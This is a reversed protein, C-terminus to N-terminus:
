KPPKRNRQKHTKSLMKKLTASKSGNKAYTSLNEKLWSPGTNQFTKSGVKDLLQKIDLEKALPALQIKGNALAAIELPYPGANLLKTSIKQRSQNQRCDDLSKEVVKRTQLTKKASKLPSSNGFWQNGKWHQRLLTVNDEQNAVWTTHDKICFFSNNVFRNSLPLLDAKKISHDRKKSWPERRKLLAALELVSGDSIAITNESILSEDARAHESGKPGANLYLCANGRSKRGRGLHIFNGCVNHQSGWLFIGGYEFRDDTAIFWNNLLTQRDGHRFNMTGQCNEFTNNYFLNGQSKSTIIEAESDQRQFLNNDVLCSGIDNRWTGIRISAGANGTKQPNSFYCHDIRHFMAPAGEAGDVKKYKDKWGKRDCNNLNIVQDFSAKGTFSCHDIRSFKPVIGSPPPTVVIWGGSATDFQHIACQTIRVHSSYITILGPGHSKWETPNRAGDTFLFGSLIVHEGHIEIKSDGSIIVKGPNEARIVIPKKSTGSKLIKLDLDRLTGDQVIITEGPKMSKVHKLLEKQTRVSQEQGFSPQPAVNIWLILAPLLTWLLSSPKPFNMIPNIFTLTPNRDSCFLTAQRKESM